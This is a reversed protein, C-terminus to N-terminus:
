PSAKLTHAAIAEVIGPWAGGHPLDHGMGEILMLHAGPIAEATDRGAEVPIVPDDTGHIVLTPATVSALANRRDAQTMVANVQRAVGEPCFSRDYARASITRTWAEDFAFGKGTMARFLAVMHEIYADRETPAPAMLFAVVKPDPPPLDRNGTTSYISILSQVRSPHRIAVTQAIMGGMSTGCVHAKGIGLADLLGVADDAMDDLAYSPPDGTPRVLGEAEDCKTSLGADRNDFRIVYHGRKVLDECISDDWLILQSALGNILLLPRAAPDGLTEYEIDIGNATARSM